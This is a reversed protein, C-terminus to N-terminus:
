ANASGAHGRIRGSSTPPPRVGGDSLPKPIVPDSHRGWYGLLKQTPRHPTLTPAHRNRLAPPLVPTPPEGIPLGVAGAQLRGGRPYALLEPETGIVDLLRHRELRDLEPRRPDLWRGGELVEEGGVGVLADRVPEPLGVAVDDAAEAALDVVRWVEDGPGTVLGLHLLHQRPAGVLPDGRDRVSAPGAHDAPDLRPDPVAIAACHRDVESAEVLHELDVGDRPCRRM